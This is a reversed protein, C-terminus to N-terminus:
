DSGPLDGDPLIESLLLGGPRRGEILAEFAARVCLFRRDGFRFIVAKGSQSLYWLGIRKEVIVPTLTKQAEDLWIAPEKGLWVAPWDDLLLYGPSLGPIFIQLRGRDEQLRLAAGECIAIM